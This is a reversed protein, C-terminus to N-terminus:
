QQAQQAQEILTQSVIDGSPGGSSTAAAENTAINKQAEFSALAAQYITQAAVGCTTALRAVDEYEPAARELSEEKWHAVKVRVLGWKTMVGVIKRPLAARQIESVRAGLTTTEKLLTALVRDRHVPECLASLVAAPRNKKMQVPQLWVDVAGTELLRAFVHDFFEPNMDDINSEILTLTQWELGDRPQMQPQTATASSASADSPTTAGVATPVAEGIVVRLLNPRDPWVKKGAGFGVHRPVFAPPDGFSTALTGVIGAGTPTVMEGIIGTPVMPAGRLLKLTAPAPVPMRGHVCDVYGTSYPLASSHVTEVGLYELCWAAGCIDILSDVGGIEHFHIADPTSHHLEAEVVAIAEFITLSIQKVRASLESAEIIARIEAMSRGHHHAHGHGQGVHHEHDHGHHHDHTHEHGHPHEHTHTHSHDHDHSHSHSHEHDAHSHESHAHSQARSHAEHHDHNPYSRPPTAPATALEEDDSVGHLTIRVNIAHIGSLLVPTAEIDWGEVPLSALGAKLAEVPVGCDLFAGLLMDGAIGSFCDFYAIM